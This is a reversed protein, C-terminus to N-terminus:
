GGLLGSSTACKIGSTVYSPTTSSSSFDCFTPIYLTHLLPNNLSEEEEESLSKAGGDGASGKGSSFIRRGVV